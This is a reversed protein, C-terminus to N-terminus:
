IRCLRYKPGNYLCVTTDHSVVLADLLYSWHICCRSCLIFYDVDLLVPATVIMAYFSGFGSMYVLIGLIIFLDWCIGTYWTYYVFGLMYWYVLYLLM